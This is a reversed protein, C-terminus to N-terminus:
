ASLQNSFAISVAELKFMAQQDSSIKLCTWLEYNEQVRSNRYEKQENFLLLNLLKSGVNTLSL